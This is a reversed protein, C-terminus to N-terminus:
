LQVRYRSLARKLEPIVVGRVTDRDVKEKIDVNVTLTGVNTVAPATTLAPAPGGPLQYQPVQAARASEAAARAAGEIIRVGANFQSVAEKFEQFTQMQAPTGLMAGTQPNAALAIDALVQAFQQRFYTVQELATTLGLDIKVAAAELKLAEMQGQLTEIKTRAEEAQAALTQGQAQLTADIMGGLDGIRKIADAAEAEAAKIENRAATLAQATKALERRREVDMARFAEQAKALDYTAKKAQEPTKAKSLRVKLDHLRKIADSEKSAYQESTRRYADMAEKDAQQASRVREVALSSYMGQSKKAYEVAVKTDGAAQAKRAMGGFRKAEVLQEGHAAKPGIVTWRMKLQLDRTELVSRRREDVIEREKEQLGKLDAEYKKVGESLEKYLAKYADKAETALREQSILASDYKSQAAAVANAAANRSEALRREEAILADIDEMRRSDILRQAEAATKGLILLQSTGWNAKQIWANWFAELAALDTPLEAVSYGARMLARQALGGRHEALRDFTEKERRLRELKWRAEEVPKGIQEDIYKGIKWGAFAVGMAAAGAGIASLLVLHAALMVNAAKVLIILGPLTKAFSLLGMVAAGLGLTTLSIAAGWELIKATAEPHQKVWESVAKGWEQVKAVVEKVTPLIAEGVDQFANKVSTMLAAFQAGLTEGLAGSAGAAAGAKDKFAALTANFAEWQAGTVALVGPMARINPFLREIEVNGRAMAERLQGLFGVLGRARLSVDDFGIGLERAYKIAAPSPKIIQMLMMRMALASQEVGMGSRTMAAMAALVEDLSIGLQSAMPVVMGLSNTWSQLSGRGLRLVTVLSDNVGVLQDASLRYATMVRTLADVAEGESMMGLRSLKLAQDLVQMGAAADTIGAQLIGFYAQMAGAQDKGYALALAQAGQGISQLDLGKPAVMRLRAMQEEFQMAQRTAFGIAGGFLAVGGLGARRLSAAVSEAKSVVKDMAQDYGSSDAGVIAKLEDLVTGM